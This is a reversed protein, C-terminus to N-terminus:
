ELSFLPFNSLNHKSFCLFLFASESIIFFSKFKVLLLPKGTQM